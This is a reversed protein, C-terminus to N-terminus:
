FVRVVQAQAACQIAYARIDDLVNYYTREAIHLAYMTSYRSEGRGSGYRRRFIGERISDENCWSRVARIVKLWREPWEVPRGEVSVMPVEEANRIAQAATPDPVYSSRTHVGSLNQSPSLKAEEVAEAIQKEHRIMYEIKRVNADRSERQM